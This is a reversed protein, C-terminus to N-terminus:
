LKRYLDLVRKIHHPFDSSTVYEVSVFGVTKKPTSDNKLYYQITDLVALKLDAPIAEYGATYTIRIANFYNTYSSYSPFSIADNVKDFIYDTYAVLPTYTAGNDTSVEFNEIELIPFENLSIYSEADKYEEISETTFSRGCYTRILSSVMPIIANIRDDQEVSRIGVYTKYEDLTVLDAM